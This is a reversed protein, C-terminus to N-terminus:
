FFKFAIFLVLVIDIIFTILEYSNSGLFKIYEILKGEKLTPIEFTQLM